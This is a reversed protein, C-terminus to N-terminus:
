HILEKPSPEHYMSPRKNTVELSIPLFVFQFHSDLLESTKISRYPFPVNLFHYTFWCEISHLIRFM